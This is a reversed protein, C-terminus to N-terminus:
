SKGYEEETIKEVLELEKKLMRNRFFLFTSAAAFFGIIGIAWGSGTRPLPNRSEILKVASCAVPTSVTNARFEDTVECDYGDPDAPKLPTNPIPSKVKVKFEKFQSYNEYIPKNNEDVCAKSLQLPPIDQPKWTLVNAGTTSIIEGGGSDIVDTYYLLDTINDEFVFGKITESSANCIGIQYRM